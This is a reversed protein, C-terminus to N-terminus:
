ILCKQKTKKGFILKCLKGLLQAIGVSAMMLMLSVAIIILGVGVFLLCTAGSAGLTAFGAIICAIGGVFCGIAGAGFGFVIGAVGCILGIWVPFTLVIIAVKWGTSLGQNAMNENSSLEEGLNEKIIKKALEEVDGLEKIVESEKDEGAEEFYEKYYEMTDNYEEITLVKLRDALVSLYEDKRM